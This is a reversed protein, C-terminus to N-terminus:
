TLPSLCNEMLKNRTGTDTAKPEAGCAEMSSRVLMVSCCAGRGCLMVHIVVFVVSQGPCCFVASCCNGSIEWLCLVSSTDSTYKGLFLYLSVHFASGILM